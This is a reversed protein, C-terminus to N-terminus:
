ENALAEYQERPSLKDELALWEDFGCDDLLKVLEFVTSLAPDLDIVQYVPKGSVHDNYKGVLPQVFEPPNISLTLFEM